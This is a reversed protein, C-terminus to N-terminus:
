MPLHILGADIFGWIGGIYGLPVGIVLCIEGAVEHQTALLIWGAIILVIALLSVWGSVPM